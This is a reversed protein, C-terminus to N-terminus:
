ELKFADLICEYHEGLAEGYDYSTDQDDLYRTSWGVCYKDLKGQEDKKAAFVLTVVVGDFEKYLEKQNSKSRSVWKEILYASKEYYSNVKESNHRSIFGHDKLVEITQTKGLLRKDLKKNPLSHFWEKFEDTKQTM